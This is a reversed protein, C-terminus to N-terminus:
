ERVGVIIKGEIERKWGVIQYPFDGEFIIALNRKLEPYEIKYEKLKKGKFETGSYANIQTKAEQISPLKGVSQWYAFSPIMEVEGLPLDDPNMRIKAWVEDELSQRELEYEKHLKDTNNVIQFAKPVQSLLTTSSGQVDQINNLIKLAHPRISSNLPLFTTTVTSYDNNERKIKGTFDVRLTKVSDRENVGQTYGLRYSLGGEGIVVSDEKLTYRNVETPIKQWYNLFVSSTEYNVPTITSTKSNTNDQQFITAKKAFAFLISLTICIALFNNRIFKNM